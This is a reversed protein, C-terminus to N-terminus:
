FFCQRKEASNETISLAVYVSVSRAETEAKINLILEQFKQIKTDLLHGTLHWQCHKDQPFLESELPGRKEATATKTVCLLGPNIEM